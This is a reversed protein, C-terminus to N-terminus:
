SNPYDSPGTPDASLSLVDNNDILTKESGERAVELSPVLYSYLASLSAM